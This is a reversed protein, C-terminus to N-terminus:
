ASRCSSRDGPNVNVVTNVSAIPMPAVVAIKVTTLPMRILGSGNGSDSRKIASTWWAGPTLWYSIAADGAM